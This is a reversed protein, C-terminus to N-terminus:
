LPIWPQQLQLLHWYGWHGRVMGSKETEEEGDTHIIIHRSEHIWTKKVLKHDEITCPGRQDTCTTSNEETSYRKDTFVAALAAM